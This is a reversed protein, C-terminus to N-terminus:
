LSRKHKDSVIKEKKQVIILLTNVTTNLLKLNSDYTRGWISIGHRNYISITLISM